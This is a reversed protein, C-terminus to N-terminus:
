ELKGDIAEVTKVVYKLDTGMVAVATRLAALGETNEGIDERMARNEAGTAGAWTLVGVALVGLVWRVWAATGGNTAVGGNRAM